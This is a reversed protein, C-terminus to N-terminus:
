RPSRRRRAAFAEILRKAESWHLAGLVICLAFYLVTALAVSLILYPLAGGRTLWLMGGMVIAALAARLLAGWEPQGLDLQRCVYLGAVTFFVEGALTGACAGYYSFFPIFILEVIAEVAFVGIVLRALINQKGVAAFLFRFQISLFSLVAIWILIRLLLVSEEGDEKFFAIMPEAAACVTVALPLSIIWLMRTSNAFTERLKPRDGEALRAFSPFVATMVAKPLFNLPSLPRYALSYIGVIELPQLWSLLITDLQWTANRTADGLGLPVAVKMWEKAVSWNILPKQRLLRSWLLCVFFIGVLGHSAALMGLMTAVSALGLWTVGGALIVVLGAQLIKGLNEPAFLEEARFIGATYRQLQIFACAVGALLFQTVQGPDHRIWGQMAGIGTLVLMSMLGIVIFLGTAESLVQTYAQPEQVLRRTLLLSSGMEILQQVVMIWAFVAFFAGFEATSLSHSLIWVLGLNFIAYLVQAVLNFTSNRLIRRVPGDSPPMDAKTGHPM